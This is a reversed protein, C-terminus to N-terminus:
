GQVVNDEEAQQEAETVTVNTQTAISDEMSITQKGHVELPFMTVARSKVEEM